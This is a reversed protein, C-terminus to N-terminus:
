KKKLAEGAVIAVADGFQFLFKIGFSIRYERIDFNPYSSLVSQGSPLFDPYNSNLQNSLPSVVRSYFALRFNKQSGFFFEYGLSGSLSLYSVLQEKNGDTHLLYLNQDFQKRNCTLPLSYVGGTLLWLHGKADRKGPRFKLYLPIELCNMDFFDKKGDEKELCISTGTYDVGSLLGVVSNASYVDFVFGYSAFPAPASSKDVLPDKYTVKLASPKNNGVMFGAELSAGMSFRANHFSIFKPRYNVDQSYLNTIGTTNIACLIVFLYKM